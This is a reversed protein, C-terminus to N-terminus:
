GTEKRQTVNVVGHRLEQKKKKITKNKTEQEQKVITEM